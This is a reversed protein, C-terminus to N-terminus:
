VCACVCVIVCVFVCVVCVCVCVCVCVSLSLFFVCVPPLCVSILRAPCPVVSHGTHQDKKRGRDSVCVCVCVCMYVRVRMCVCVCLRPFLSSQVARSDQNSVSNNSAMQM